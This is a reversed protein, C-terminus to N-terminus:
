ERENATGKVEKVPKPPQLDQAVKTMFDDTKGGYITVRAPMVQQGPKAFSAVERMLRDYPCDRGGAVAFTM